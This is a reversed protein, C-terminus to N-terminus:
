TPLTKGRTEPAIWIVILGVLYILTIVAGAQAYDGQFHQMLAGMQLAGVAALIRGANFSLGQGTARVRTPFLEPLYIAFGAFLALQCAGMLPSLWFVDSTGNFFQFFSVTAILAAVFAIAFAPKRGIGQALKTMLM